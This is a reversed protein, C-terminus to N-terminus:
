LNGLPWEGVQSSPICAYPNFVPSLSAQLFLGLLSPPQLCSPDANSMRRQAGLPPWPGLREWLGEWLPDPQGPHLGSSHSGVSM